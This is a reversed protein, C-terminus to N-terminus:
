EPETLQTLDNVENADKQVLIDKTLKHLISFTNPEPIVDGETVDKIFTVDHPKLLGETDITAGNSNDTFQSLGRVSIIGATCTADITLKGQSMEVTTVDLANVSNLISLGGSYNRVSLTTDNLSITPRDTGPIISYTNILEVDGTNCFLNGNLGCWVFQGLLHFNNDLTCEYACLSDVYDGRLVCSRIETGKINQGNLDLVPKGIGFIQFNKMNRDFTVENYFYLKKVGKFEALDVADAINNFPYAPSGSGNQVAETDVYISDSLNEASIVATTDVVATGTTNNIVNAIGTIRILGDNITSDLDVIGGSTMNVEIDEPGTKNIIKIDGHFNKIGVDRGGGGCDIIPYDGNAVIGDWCDYFGTQGSGVLSVTGTMVCQYLFGEIMSINITRCETITALGDFEGQVTANFIDVGTTLAGSEFTFLSKNPNQGYLIYNEVNDGTTFTFNGIFNLSDLGRVEAILTADQINNVPSQPTGKPFVTGTTGHAQDIWVFNQFSSFEIAQNSILGASNQSRVSVQNVNIVDGINSNAGTLNVAYQGDEFTVTYGNIIEVVRAYVIGGLLVETNHVHTVLHPMGEFGSELAKLDLRFQNIPLERIETPISQILTTYAKPVTIIKTGWDISIM